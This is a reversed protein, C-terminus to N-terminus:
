CRSSVPGYGPPTLPTMQGGGGGGFFHGFGVCNCSLGRTIMFPGLIQGIQGGGCFLRAVPRSCSVRCVTWPKYQLIQTNLHKQPIHGPIYMFSFVICAYESLEAGIFGLKLLFGFILLSKYDM